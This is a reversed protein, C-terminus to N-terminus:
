PSSLRLLPCLRGHPAPVAPLLARLPRPGGSARARAQRSGRRAGASELMPRPSARRTATSVGSSAAARPAPERAGAAAARARACARGKPSGDNPGDRAETTRSALHQPAAQFVPLLGPGERQGPRGVRSPETPLHPVERRPAQTGFEVGPRRRTRGAATPRGGRSRRAGPRTAAPRGPQAAGAAAVGLSAAASGTKRAGCPINLGPRFPPRSSPFGRLLLRSNGRSHQGIFNVQLHLWRTGLLFSKSQTM